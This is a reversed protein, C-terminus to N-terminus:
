REVEGNSTEPWKHVSIENQSGSRFRNESHGTIEGIIKRGFISFYVSVFNNPLATPRLDFEAFFLSFFLLLPPRPIRVHIQDHTHARSTAHLFDVVLQAKTQRTDPWTKCKKSKLLQTDVSKDGGGM